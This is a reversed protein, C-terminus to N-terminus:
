CIRIFIPTINPEGSRRCAAIGQLEISQGDSIRRMPATLSRSSITPLWVRYLDDLVLHRRGKLLDFEVNHIAFPNGLGTLQDVKTDLSTNHFFGTCTRRCCGADQDPRSFAFDNRRSLGSSARSISVENRWFAPNIASRKRCFPPGSLSLPSPSSPQNDSEHQQYSKFYPQMTGFRAAMNSNLQVANPPFTLLWLSEFILVANPPISPNQM